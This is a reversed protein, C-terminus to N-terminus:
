PTSEVLRKIRMLHDGDHEPRTLLHLMLPKLILWGGQGDKKLSLLTKGDLTSTLAYRYTVDFGVLTTKTVLLRDQEFGEITVVQFNPIGHSYLIRKYTSGKALPSSTELKVQGINQSLKDINVPDVLAKFVEPVPKDIIISADLASTGAITEMAVTISIGAFGALLVLLAVHSSM